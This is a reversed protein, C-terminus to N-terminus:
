QDSIIPSNIITSTKIIQLRGDSQAKEIQEASKLVTATANRNWQVFNLRVLPSYGKEGPLATAVPLQFGFSGNGKVGNLFDYGQQITSHNVLALFPTYNVKHNLSHSIAIATENDSADTTLFLAVRGNVYGQSLDLSITKTSAESTTTLM